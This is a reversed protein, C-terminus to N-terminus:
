CLVGELYLGGSNLGGLFHKRVEILGPSINPIKRYFIDLRIFRYGNRWLDRSRWLAMNIGSYLTLVTDLMKSLRVCFSNPGWHPYQIFGTILLQCNLLRM